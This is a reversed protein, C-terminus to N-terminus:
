LTGGMEASCPGYRFLSRGKKCSIAQAWEQPYPQELGEIVRAPDLSVFSGGCFFRALIKPYFHDLEGLVLYLSTDREDSDDEPSFFAQMRNHSHIDAYRIYRPNDDYPCDRLDADIHSETVTQKPIYAFFKSEEKDWYILALAEYDSHESMFSRFFAIIQGLLSQPILPLAPTFGARITEFDVVKRKPAIFEGQETKRLEYFKGDDSPLLCIVKDSARADELSLFHGRYAAIGKNKGIVRPKVLCDPDKDKSKKLAELFDRSREIVEKVSCIMTGKPDKIEKRIGCYEVTWSVYKGEELDSFDEMKRIRLEEFTMSPDEIPEKAGRYQFVPPKELLGKKANATAKQAFAAAIPNEEAEEAPAEKSKAQAPEPLASTQSSAPPPPVSATEAASVAPTEQASAPGEFPNSGTNLTAAGFIKDIDLREEPPLEGFNWANNEESM